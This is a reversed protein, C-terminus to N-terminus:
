QTEHTRLMQMQSSQCHIMEIDLLLERSGSKAFSVTNQLLM